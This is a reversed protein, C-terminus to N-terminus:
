AGGERGLDGLLWIAPWAGTESPLKARVEYYGYADLDIDSKLRASTIEGGSRTAIIKLAGNKGDDNGDTDLETGDAAILDVIQSNDTSATYTQLEGNGWGNNGRGIEHDWNDPNPQGGIEEFNDEFELTFNTPITFTHNSSM